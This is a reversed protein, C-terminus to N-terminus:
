ISGTFIYSAGAKRSNLKAIYILSKSVIFMRLGLWEPRWWSELYITLSTGFYIDIFTKYHDRSFILLILFVGIDLPLISLGHHVWIMFNLLFTSFVMFLQEGPFYFHWDSLLTWSKRGWPSCGVLSRQGHSKGPLYIPTHQWKRKWPIKMDEEVIQKVVRLKGEGDTFQASLLM